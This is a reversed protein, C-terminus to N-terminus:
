PKRRNRFFCNYVRSFLPKWRPVDDTKRDSGSPPTDEIYEEETLADQVAISIGVDVPDIMGNGNWDLM